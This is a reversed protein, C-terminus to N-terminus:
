AANEGTVGHMCDPARSTYIYCLGENLGQSCVNACVMGLKDPEIGPAACVQWAANKEQVTTDALNLATSDAAALGAIYRLFWTAGVHEPGGFDDLGGARHSTRGAGQPGTRLGTGGPPESTGLSQPGEAAAAASLIWRALTEDSLSCSHEAVLTALVPLWVTPGSFAIDPLTKLPSGSEVRRRKAPHQTDDPQENLDDGTRSRQHGQRSLSGLKIKATLLLLSHQMASCMASSGRENEHRCVCPDDKETLGVGLFGVTPYVAGSASKGVLLHSNAM